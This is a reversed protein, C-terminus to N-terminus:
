PSPAEDGLRVVENALAEFDARTSRHNVIACRITFRGGLVTSSPVAFGSEQLAVLIRQNLADLAADSLGPRRYRFNVVNLATPAMLELRPQAYVLGTLHRAQDVNQEILQAYKAFGDAKLAMWIKLARFSRSLQVGYESFRVPATALGGELGALYPPIVSFSRRHAERSRVLVCAAEYPSYLWKHFDFIVSDARELGSLDPRIAPAMMALAGFAGDVHFWLKERECLEAMAGLPDIAGTNVTGATAIVCIPRLGQTRDQAISRELAKLDITYDAQTDILRLSQEGLGLLEVAKRISSHAERSAYMTLRGSGQDVGRERLSEVQTNRAVTLATLNAASGGSVLLGSSGAPFGMIERFWEIVQLEVLAPSHDFDSANPNMVAALFDALVGVPAGSGQVWGWFRPHINGNGYPRVLKLFEDYTAQAGQGQWPAPGRLGARVDDPARQWVRQERLSALFDVSDDVMRHALQRFQEWDTPDLTANPEPAAAALSRARLDLELHIDCRAYDPDSGVHTVTFGFHRYLRIANKLSTHSRILIREAERRRAFDIATEMLRRAYGRGQASPDVGMKTLEFVQADIKLMACAGKAFGDEFLLFVEGGPDIIHRRPHDLSLRDPPEVAFYKEIWAYNLTAFAPQYEDKYTDIVVSPLPKPQPM